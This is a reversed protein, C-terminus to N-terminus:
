CACNKEKEPNEDSPKLQVGGGGKGQQQGSRVKGFRIMIERAIYQFAENVGKGSKASTNFHRAGVTQAYTEAESQKVVREREKDIKNGCIAIAINTGVMKHLEKVWKQVKVFSDIDTIDYVLIAGKSERYYIPGLAQFREQGATDWIDLPVMEDEVKVSKPFNQAQVTSAQTESFKGDIYRTIISTKGVRGEGLFVVRYSM